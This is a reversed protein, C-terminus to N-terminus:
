ESAIPKIEITIAKTGLITEPQGQRLIRQIIRGQGLPPEAEIKQFALDLTGTKKTRVNFIFLSPDNIAPGQFLIEILDTPPAPKIKWQEKEPKIPLEINFQTNEKIRVLETKHTAVPITCNRACHTGLPCHYLPSSCGQHSCRECIVAGYIVPTIILLCFPVASIKM